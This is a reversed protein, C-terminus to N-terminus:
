AKDRARKRAQRDRDVKRRHELGVLYTYYEHNGIRWGWDRHDDLPILRRGENKTNRSTADPKELERIANEVMSLPMNTRRAISEITKDVEGNEDALVIMQQFVVMTKWNVAISSDYMQEFIKGFIKQSM